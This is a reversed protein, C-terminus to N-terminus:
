EKMRENLENTHNFDNSGYERLLNSFKIMTFSNENVQLSRM